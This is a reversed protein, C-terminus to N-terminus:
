SNGQGFRSRIPGLSAPFVQVIDQLQPMDLNSVCAELLQTVATFANASPVGAQAKQAASALESASKADDAAGSESGLNLTGLDDHM